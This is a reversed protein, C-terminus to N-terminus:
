SPTAVARRVSGTAADDDNPRIYIRTVYVAAIFMVIEMMAGIGTEAASHRMRGIVAVTAGPVSGHFVNATYRAIKRQIGGHPAARSLWCHLYVNRHVVICFFATRAGFKKETTRERYQM